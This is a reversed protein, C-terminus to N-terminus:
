CLGTLPQVAKQRIPEAAQKEKAGKATSCKKESLCGFITAWIDNENQDIVHPKPVQTASAVRINFGLVDVPEGPFPREEFM